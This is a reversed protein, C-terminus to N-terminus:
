KKVLECGYLISKWAYASKKKLTATLIEGDPFYRVKSSAM